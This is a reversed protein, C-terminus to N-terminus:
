GLPLELQMSGDDVKSKKMHTNAWTLFARVEDEEADWEWRSLFINGRAAEAVIKARWSIFRLPNDGRSIM